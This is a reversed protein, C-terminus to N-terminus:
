WAVSSRQRTRRGKEVWAMRPRKTVSQSVMGGGGEVDEEEDIVPLSLQKSFGATKKFRQGPPYSKRGQLKHKSKWAHQCSGRRSGHGCRARSSSKLKMGIIVEASAVVFTVLMMCVTWILFVHQVLPLRIQEVM